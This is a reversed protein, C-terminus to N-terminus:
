KWSARLEDAGSEVMQKRMDRAKTLADKRADIASRHNLRATTEIQKLENRFGDRVNLLTTKLTDEAVNEGTTSTNCADKAATIASTFDTRRITEIKAFGERREKIIKDVSARFKEIIDVAALRFIRRSEIVANEFTDIAALKLVNKAAKQRLTAIYTSFQADTDLRANTFVEDQKQRNELLSEDQQKELGARSTEAIDFDAYVAEEHNAIRECFPISEEQAFAAQPLLVALFLAILSRSFIKGM